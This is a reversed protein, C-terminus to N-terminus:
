PLPNGLLDYEINSIVREPDSLSKRLTTSTINGADDYYYGTIAGNARTESVKRNLGDYSYKVSFPLGQEKNVPDLQQILRNALNYTYETGYGSQIRAAVTDGTGAAYGENDLERTFM